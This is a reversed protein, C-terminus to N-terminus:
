WIKAKRALVADTITAAHESKTKGCKKTTLRASPDGPSLDQKNLSAEKPTSQIKCVPVHLAVESTV